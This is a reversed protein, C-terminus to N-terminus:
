RGRARFRVHLHNDHHVLRQVVGRKGGLRTRPGVFVYVAGARVFRHVLDAALGRDIQAVSTIPLELGDKRPYYIDADLGNQHSAHGLGGFRRGFPGGSTRSIDAIGVRQANPHAARYEGIVRLMTKITTDAGWRRWPRNPFRELIPDWSFFDPGEAPLQVGNYLFGHNTAGAAYSRRWQIPGEDVHQLVSSTVPAPAPTTQAHALAGGFMTLPALLIASALGRM